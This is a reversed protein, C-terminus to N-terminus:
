SIGGRADDSKPFPGQRLGATIPTGNRTGSSTASAALFLLSHGRKPMSASGKDAHVGVWWRPGADARDDGDQDDSQVQITDGPKIDEIAKFGDATLLPTGAAFGVILRPQDPM